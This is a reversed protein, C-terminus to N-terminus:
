AHSALVGKTNQDAMYTDFVSLAYSAFGYQPAGGFVIAIDLGEILEQRTVGADAAARVHTLICRESGRAVGMLVAILAKTKGDLAGPATAAHKMELFRGVVDPSAERFADRATVFRQTEAPIKKDIM